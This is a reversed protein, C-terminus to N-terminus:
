VFIDILTCNKHTTKLIANLFPGYFPHTHMITNGNYLHKWDMKRELIWTCVHAVLIFMEVAKVSYMLLSYLLLLNVTSGQEQEVSIMKFLFCVFYILM